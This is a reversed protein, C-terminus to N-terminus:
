NFDNHLGVVRKLIVLIICIVVETYRLNFINYIINLIMANKIIVNYTLTAMKRM